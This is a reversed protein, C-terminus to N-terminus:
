DSPEIFWGGQAKLWARMRGYRQHTGGDVYKLSAPDEDGWAMHQLHASLEVTFRAVGNSALHNSLLVDDSSRFAEPQGALTQELRARDLHRRRYACAGYGQLVHCPVRDGRIQLVHQLDETFDFGKGGFAAEPNAEAAAHLAAIMDPPYIVDDDLTILLTDPDTEVELTPLIKMVPGFDEPPRLITLRPEALLADPIIYSEANRFREPLNLYVADPLLTQSWLAELLQPLHVIRSPSTSLTGVIRM